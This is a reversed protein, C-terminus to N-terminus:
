PVLAKSLSRSVQELHARGELSMGGKLSEDIQKKLQGAQYRMLSTAEGPVPLEPLPDLFVQMIEVYVRQLERRSQSIESNSALESWVNKQVTDYLESLAFVPESEPVHERAGLIREAVQPDLLKELITTQMDLILNQVPLTPPKSGSSFRDRALRSVFEPQFSFSKPQFYTQMLDSLVQRQRQPKIPEYLPRGSDAHDRRVTAGGLYRTMLKAAGLLERYGSSFAATLSKYSDGKPLEMAQAKEWIEKGLAIRRQAYAFPDSGLDFRSVTPDLSDALEDTEFRLEPDQTSRAAISDLGTKEESPKFLQYAYQVALYDYAGLKSSVLEGQKEGPLSLNFPVYDMVSSGIGHEQTFVPNQLQELSHAASGAFNHRLGLTHGVEHTVTARVYDQALTDSAKKDGRSELLARAMAAEQSAHAAFHCSEGKAHLHQHGPITGPHAPKGGALNSEFWQYAETGVGDAIRIDADLIEGTRPDVQSPGVSSDADAATYWRISAHRSDLTDFEDAEQQQRVQIADKFGIAEFAKNWELVGDSVAQRYKEPVEKSIWYVIPQVPESLEAKPDKKELRWRNVLHVKDASKDSTYDRRSSIFHGLRDDALRPRMPKDPLESFNYRFETLVSRGLPTSAPLAEAGAEGLRYHARVAFSTEKESSQTQSISSNEADLIFPAKYTQSLRNEYDPIDSLLLADADVILLDDGASAGEIPASAILSDAFSQAVFGAESSKPDAFFGTNRAVLQVRNGSKQFEAIQAEGMESSVLDNEGVGKAVSFSFFFPHNLKEKPIALFTKGGQRYLTVFGPIEEAPPSEEPVRQASEPQGQFEVQDEPPAAAEVAAERAPRAANSKALIPQSGSGVISSM